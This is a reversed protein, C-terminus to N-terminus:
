DAPLVEVRVDDELETPPHLIVEDGAAAGASIARVRGDGIGLKVPTLQSRGGVVRHVHWDGKWRFLASEPVLLASDASTELIVRVDVRFGDGLPPIEDFECLVTVRQQEVGLSSIKLFAQPLVRRVRGRLLGQGLAGGFFEIPQGPKMRAADESLFDVEVELTSLDGIELIPAGAALEVTSEEFVRLVTGATEVVIPALTLDRELIALEAQLAQAEKRTAAEEWDFDRARKKVVVAELQAARHALERARVDMECSRFAEAAVTEALQVRELEEDSNAGQSAMEQTRHVERKAQELTARCEALRREERRHEAAAQEALVEAREIEEPKPVKTAIGRLRETLSDIRARAAAARQDLELPDMRALEQGKVVTDGEELEVRLLRGAFPASVRYRERVRTRGEEEVFDRVVGQQLAHTRVVLPRHTSTWVWGVIALVALLVFVTRKKPAKM